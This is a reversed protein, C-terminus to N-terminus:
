VRSAKDLFTSIKDKNENDLFAVFKNLETKVNPNISKKNNEQVIIKKLLEKDYNFFIDDYSIFASPDTSIHYHLGRPEGGGEIDKLLYSPNKLDEKFKNIRRVGGKIYLDRIFSSIDKNFSPTIDLYEEYIKAREKMRGRQIIKDKGDIAFGFILLILISLITYLVLRIGHIWISGDLLQSITSKQNTAPSRKLVNFNEIGAIKGFPVINPTEDRKHLVLLELVVYKNHDFIIKKFELGNSTKTPKLNSSLYDSNGQTIIPENVIEGNKIQFGWALDNDYFNSLVSAGGNNEIKITFIRLNLEDKNIKRGQINIELNDVSKGSNFVNSDSLITYEINPKREHYYAYITLVISIIVIVQWTRKLLALIRKFLNKM